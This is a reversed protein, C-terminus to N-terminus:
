IPLADHLSLTYEALIGDRDVLAYSISPIAKDEVEYAILDEFLSRAEASLTM